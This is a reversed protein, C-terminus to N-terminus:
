KVAYFSLYGQEVQRTTHRGVFAGDSWKRVVLSIGNSHLSWRVRDRSFHLPQLMEAAEGITISRCGLIDGDPNRLLLLYQDSHCFRQVNAARISERV